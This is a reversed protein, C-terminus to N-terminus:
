APNEPFPPPSLGTSPKKSGPHFILRAEIEDLRSELRSQGESCKNDRSLHRKKEETRAEQRVALAKQETILAQQGETLAQFNSSKM